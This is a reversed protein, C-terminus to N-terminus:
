TSRPARRPSNRLPSIMRPKGSTSHLRNRTAKFRALNAEAEAVRIQAAEYGIIGGQAALNANNLATVSTIQEETANTLGRAATAQEDMAARQNRAAREALNQERTLDKISKALGTQKGELGAITVGLENYRDANAKIQAASGGQELNIAAQAERAELLAATVVRQKSELASLARVTTAGARANETQIQAWKKGSETARESASATQQFWIWLGALAVVATGIGATALIQATTFKGLAEGALLAQFHIAEFAKGFAPAVRMFTGIVTSLPGVAALLLAFSSVAAAVPAPLHEMVGALGSAADAALRLGPAMVTVLSAGANLVENKAKAVQGALTEGYAKASGGVETTLEKLIVKQASLVDGSKVFAAIQDQQADTLQVGVRRLATVGAIPDNLAKGVIIASETMDKGFAVSLNLAAKTAQNFIDNGRGAENRVATFTLLLNAGSKIAEDDTGSKKMLSTSLTDIQKATVNAAGGTSRIAAETQASAKEAQQLENMFAAGAAALPLTVAATMKLGVSQLKKGTQAFSSEVDKLGKTASATDAVFKIVVSLSSAMVFGPAPSLGVANAPEDRLVGNMAELLGHPMTM